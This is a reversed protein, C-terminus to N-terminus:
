REDNFVTRGCTPCDKRHVSVYGACDPCTWRNRERDLLADMGKERIYTLNDIMSMHYKTRYRKDLDQLRRCMNQCELCLQSDFAQRKECTVISCGICHAPKSDNNSRCGPCPNRKREFAYCLRCNMGCPAILDARMDTM